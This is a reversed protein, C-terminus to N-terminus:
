NNVMNTPALKQSACTEMLQEDNEVCRHIGKLDSLIQQAKTLKAKNFHDKECETAARVFTIVRNIEWM